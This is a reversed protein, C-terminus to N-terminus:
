FPSELRANVYHFYSRLCDISDRVVYIVKKGKYSRNYYHHSKLVQAQPKYYPSNRKTVTELQSSDESDPIFDGLIPFSIVDEDTLMYALMVRLWTNGAKPFSM